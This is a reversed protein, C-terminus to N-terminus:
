TRYSSLSLHSNTEWEALEMEQDEKILMDVDM